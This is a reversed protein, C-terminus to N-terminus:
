ETGTVQQDSMVQEKAMLTCQGLVHIKPLIARILSHKRTNM